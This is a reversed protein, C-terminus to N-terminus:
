LRMTRVRLTFQDCFIVLKISFSAPVKKIATPAACRVPSSLKCVISAERPTSASRTFGGFADGQCALSSPEAQATKVLRVYRLGSHRFQYFSSCGERKAHGYCYVWRLSFRGDPREAIFVCRYADDASNVIQRFVSVPAGAANTLDEVCGIRNAELKICFCASVLRAHHHGPSPKEFETVSQALM